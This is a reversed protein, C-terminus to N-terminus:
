LLAFFRLLMKEVAKDCKREIIEDIKKFLREHYTELVKLCCNEIKEDNLRQIENIEEILKKIINTIENRVYERLFEFELEKEKIIKEIRDIRSELEEIKEFVDNDFTGSYFRMITRGIIKELEVPTVKKSLLKLKLEKIISAPLIGSLNDIRNEIEKKSLFKEKSNLM